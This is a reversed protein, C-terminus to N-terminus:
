GSLSLNICTSAYIFIYKPIDNLVLALQTHLAQLAYYISHITPTYITILNALFSHQWGGM